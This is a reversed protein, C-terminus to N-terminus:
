ELEEAPTIEGEPLAQEAEPPGSPPPSIVPERWPPGIPARNTASWARQGPDHARVTIAGGDELNLTTAGNRAIDTGDVVFATDRCGPPAVLRTVVIRARTCDERLAAYTWALALHGERPLPLTCGSSDCRVGLSVSKDRPKRLDGDAALWNEAAFSAFRLGSVHLLGDPGRVGAARGEPDVYIDPREPSAALLVGVSIPLIGLLRLPTTWIAIWCLGLALFLVASASFAPLTVLAGPLGSVWYSVALMIDVGFGMVM